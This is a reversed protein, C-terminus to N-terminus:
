LTDHVITAVDIVCDVNPIHLSGDLFLVKCHMKEEMGIAFAIPRQKGIDLIVKDTVCVLIGLCEVLGIVHKHVIDVWVLGASGIILIRPHGVVLFVDLTTTRTTSAVTVVWRSTTSTALSTVRTVSVRGLVMFSIHVDVVRSTVSTFYTGRVSAVVLSGVKFIGREVYTVHLM